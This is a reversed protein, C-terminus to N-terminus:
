TKDIDNSDLNLTGDLKSQKYKKLDYLIMEMNHKVIVEYDTEGDKSKSVLVFLEICLFFILWLMYIFAIFMDDKLLDWMIKLEMLFGPKIEEEVKKRIKRKEDNLEKIRNINDTRQENKINIENVIPNVVPRNNLVTTVWVMVPVGNISISDRGDPTKVNVRSKTTETNPVMPKLQYRKNLNELEKDLSLLNSDIQAIQNNVSKEKRLVTEDVKDALYIPEQLEIDVKFLMQDVILSGLVAMIIALVSRFWYAFKNKGITLIIQREIQVIMFIMIVAGFMAYESSLGIYRNSFMYGIFGWVVMIILLASTYKKVAKKSVESCNELVKYSFGTLFCGFRLWWNM